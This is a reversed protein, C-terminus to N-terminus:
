KTQYSELERLINEEHHAQVSSYKGREGIKLLNGVHSYGLVMPPLHTVIDNINRIVTFTAWREKLKSTKVGWFVRPSGFGYGETQARIDPRHYWVYEHCLAAIAAGHSYGTIVIKQFAGDAIDAALLPEIEKWAKLFGRHAFWVTKGMRKYAKAPFNINQKWDNKGDSGQFFLYLTAGDRKLAYSASVGAQLYPIKLCTSFLEYLDM